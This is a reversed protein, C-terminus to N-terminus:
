KDSDFALLLAPPWQNMDPFSSIGAFLTATIFTECIIFATIDDAASASSPASNMFKLSATGSLFVSRLVVAGVASSVLAFPYSLLGNATSNDTQMPTKPQPHGLEELTKREPVALKCNMFLAGLEAESTYSMVAKIKESVNMMAGNNAPIEENGAMFWHGGARSRAKSESLYSADSHIALFMDSKKYTLIAEEQLAAYDLFQKCKKMRNEKPTAQEQAIASLATLMTIDLARAYFLFVSTM